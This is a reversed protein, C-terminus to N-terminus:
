QSVEWFKLRFAIETPDELGPLNDLVVPDEQRRVVLRELAHVDYRTWPDGSNLLWDQLEPNISTSELSANAKMPSARHFIFLSAIHVM